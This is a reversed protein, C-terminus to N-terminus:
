PPGELSKRGAMACAPCFGILGTLVTLVGSIALVFGLPSLGIQALSCAVVLVGGMVRASREKFGMNKRYFM